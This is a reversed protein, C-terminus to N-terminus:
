QFVIFIFNIYKVISIHINIIEIIKICLNTDNINM